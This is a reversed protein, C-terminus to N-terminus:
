TTAAAVSAVSTSLPARGFGAQAALMEPILPALDQMRNSPAGVVVIGFPLISVNQQYQLNGDITVFADILGSARKLLAGNKTGEWGLGQVTPVSHGVLADILDHPLNEDLLVRM